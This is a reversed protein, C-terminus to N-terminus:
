RMSFSSTRWPRNRNQRLELCSFGDAPPAAWTAPSRNSSSPRSNTQSNSSCGKCPISITSPRSSRTPSPPRRCAPSDPLGLTAVGSGAQVLLMDAHGHYAGAFKVIKNRGTFARALRLAGADDSRHRLQRVARTRLEPDGSAGATGVRSGLPEPAGYSTGNAAAQHIAEVVLPHAHGLILPGWSMVYDIFENGDVDWIHSGSGRSIFQPQGGVARFSVVPSNVGGPLRRKAEDFLATSREIKTAMRGGRPDFGRETILDALLSIFAPDDNLAPPRELRMGHARAAAQAQIDVDFLIEVHDSVFGIPVSLVNRIGREALKPLHDHLQPGLWPEPTRGASQYSWSWRETPLGIKATVLRATERM